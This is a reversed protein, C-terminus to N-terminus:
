RTSIEIGNNQVVSRSKGSFKYHFLADMYNEPATGNMLSRSKNKLMRVSFITM